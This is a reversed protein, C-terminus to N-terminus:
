KIVIARYTKFVELALIKGESVLTSDYTVTFVDPATYKVQMVGGLSKLEGVILPAHGPCPIDVQLNILAPASAHQASVAQNASVGGVLPFVVLFLFLNVSITTGYLISIYKAKRKLGSISFLRLRRLYLAGSITAFLFSSAVLIYFLYPSLMLPKLLATAATMGLVSLLLFAICGMHPLLGYMIGKRLGDGHKEEAQCCDNAKRSAKMSTRHHFSIHTM